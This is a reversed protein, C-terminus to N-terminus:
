WFREYMPIQESAWQNFSLVLPADKFKTQKLQQWVVLHIRYNNCIQEVHGKTINEDATLLFINPSRMAQLEEVVERWRERLTRKLSAIVARNPKLHFTEDDPIMFDVHTEREVKQYPINAMEFLRGIQLEFDKGGRTKRSQSVSLFMERLNPYWKSFIYHIAREFGDEKLVDRAERLTNKSSLLLERPIGESYAKYEYRELVDLTRRWVNNLLHDFQERVENSNFRGSFYGLEEFAEAVIVSSPHLQGDRIRKMQAKVETKLKEM